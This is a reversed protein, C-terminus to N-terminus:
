KNEGKQTYKDSWLHLCELCTRDEGEEDVHVCSQCPVHRVVVGENVDKRRTIGVEREYPCTALTFGCDKPQSKHSTIIEVLHAVRIMEPANENIKFSHEKVCKELEEILKDNM